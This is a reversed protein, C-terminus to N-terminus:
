QCARLWPPQPVVGFRGFPGSKDVSHALFPNKTPPKLPHPEFLGSKPDLLVVKPPEAGGWIRDQSPAQESTLEMM